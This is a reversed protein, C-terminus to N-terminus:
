NGENEMSGSAGAGNAATFEAKYDAIAQELQAGLEDDIKGLSIGELVKGYAGELYDILGDRFPVVEDLSLDDLYGKNGAFLVAVQSTVAMPKFRPQKLVETM